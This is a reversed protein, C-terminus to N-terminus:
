VMKKKQYKTWHEIEFCMEDYDSELTYNKTLNYGRNKLEILKALKEMKKFKQANSDLNNYPITDPNINYREADVKKEKIPSDSNSITEVKNIKPSSSSNSFNNKESSIEENSYDEIIVNNPTDNHFNNVPTDNHFENMVPENHYNNIPSNIDVSIKNDAPDLLKTHDAIMSLHLNTNTDSSKNTQM